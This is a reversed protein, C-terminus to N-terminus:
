YREGRIRRATQIDLPTLEENGRSIMIITADGLVDVIYKEVGYQLLIIADTDVSFDSIYDRMQQIFIKAFITKSLYLCSYQRQTFRINRIAKTNPKFKASGKYEKCDKDVLDNTFMHPLGADQMAYSVMIATISSGYYTQYLSIYNCIKDVLAKIVSTVEEPILESITRSGAKNAINTINSETFTYFKGVGKMKLDKYLEDVTKTESKM